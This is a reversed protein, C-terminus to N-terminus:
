APSDDTEILTWDKSVHDNAPSDNTESQLREESALESLGASLPIDHTSDIQSSPSNAHGPATTSQGDCCWFKWLATHEDTPQPLVNFPSGAEEVVARQDDGASPKSDLGIGLLANYKLQEEEPLARLRADVDIGLSFDGDNFQTGKHFTVTDQTGPGETARVNSSQNDKSTDAANDVYWEGSLMPIYRVDFSAPNRLSECTTDATSPGDIRMTDANGINEVYAAPQAAEGNQSSAGGLRSM